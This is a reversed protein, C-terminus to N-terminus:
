SWMFVIPRETFVRVPVITKIIRSVMVSKNTGDCRVNPAGIRTITPFVSLVYAAKRVTMANNAAPSAIVVVTFLAQYKHGDVGVDPPRERNTCTFPPPYKKRGPRLARSNRALSPFVTAGIAAETESGSISDFILATTAMSASNM